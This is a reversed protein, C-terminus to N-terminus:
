MGGDGFEDPDGTPIPPSPPAGGPAQGAPGPQGMSPAPAPAAGPGPQRESRTPSAHRMAKEEAANFTHKGPMPRSKSMQREGAADERKDRASGQYQKASMGTAKMGRADQAKDAPSGEYKRAM